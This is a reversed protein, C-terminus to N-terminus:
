ITAESTPISAHWNNLLAAATITHHRLKETDGDIAARLAKGGLYGLTWFWDEPEKKQDHEIGWRERQHAAELTVAKAFDHLEPTNLLTQLRVATEGVTKAVAKWTQPVM